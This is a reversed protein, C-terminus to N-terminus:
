HHFFFFSFVKGNYVDNLIQWPRNIPSCVSSVIINEQSHTPCSKKNARNRVRCEQGALVAQDISGPSPLILFLAFFPPLSRPAIRRRRVENKM